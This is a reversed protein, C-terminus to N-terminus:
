PAESVANKRRAAKLGLTADPALTWCAGTRYVRSDGGSAGSRRQEGRKHHFPEPGTARSGPTLIPLVDPM